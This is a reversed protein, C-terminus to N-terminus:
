QKTAGTEDELVFEAFELQGNPEIYASWDYGPPLTQKLDYILIDGSADTDGKLRVGYAECIRELANRFAIIDVRREPKVLPETAHITAAAIPGVNRLVACRKGWTEEPELTGDPMTKRPSIFHIEGIPMSPDSQVSFFDTAKTESKAWMRHIPDTEMLAAKCVDCASAPTVCTNPRRCIACPFNMAPKLIDLQALIRDM